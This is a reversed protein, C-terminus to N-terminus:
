LNTRQYKLCTWRQIANLKTIPDFGFAGSSYSYAVTQIQVEFM